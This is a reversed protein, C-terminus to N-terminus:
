YRTNSLADSLSVGFFFMAVLAIVTIVVFFTIMSKISKINKTRDIELLLRVDDPTLGKTDIEKFYKNYDENGGEYHGAIYTLSDNTNNKSLNNYDEESLIKSNYIGLEVLDEIIKNNMQAVEMQITNYAIIDTEYKLTM